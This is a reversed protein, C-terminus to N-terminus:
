PISSNTGLSRWEGLLVWGAGGTGRFSAGSPRGGVLNLLSLSAVLYIFNGWLGGPTIPLQRKRPEPTEPRGPVWTELEPRVSDTDRMGTEAMGRVGMCSTPGPSQSAEPKLSALGAPAAGPLVCEGQRSDQELDTLLVALPWSAGSAGPGWIFSIDTNLGVERYGRTLPDSSAFGNLSHSFGSAPTGPDKLILPGPSPIAPAPGLLPTREEAETEM